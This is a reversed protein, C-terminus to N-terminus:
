KHTNKWFDPIKRYSSKTYLMKYPHISIFDIEKQKINNVINYELILDNPCGDKDYLHNEDYNFWTKKREICDSKKFFFISISSYKYIDCNKLHDYILTDIKCLSIDEIDKNPLSCYNTIIFHDERYYYENIKDGKWSFPLFDYKYNLYDCKKKNCCSLLLAYSFIIVRIKM